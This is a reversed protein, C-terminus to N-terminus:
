FSCLNARVYHWNGLNEGGPVGYVVCTSVTQSIFILRSEPRIKEFRNHPNKMSKKTTLIMM